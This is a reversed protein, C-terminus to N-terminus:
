LEDVLNKAWRNTLVRPLGVATKTVEMLNVLAFVWVIPWHLIYAGFFALATGVFWVSGVDVLLAFRTDGGSRLVGVITTSNMMRLPMSIAMVTLLGSAIQLTDNQVTYFQLAFPKSFFLVTGLVLGVTCAIM